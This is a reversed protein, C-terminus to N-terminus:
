VFYQFVGDALLRGRRTLRLDGAASEDLLGAGTLADIADAWFGRPPRGFEEAFRQELKSDYRQERSPPIPDGSQLSFLHKRGRM